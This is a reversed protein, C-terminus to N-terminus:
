GCKASSFFLTKQWSDGCLFCFDWHFKLSKLMAHFEDFPWKGERRFILRSGLLQLLLLLQQQLLLQLLQLLQQQKKNKTKVGNASSSINPM